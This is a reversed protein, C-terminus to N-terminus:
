ALNEAVTYYPNGKRGNRIREREKQVRVVVAMLM